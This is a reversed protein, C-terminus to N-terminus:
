QAADENEQKPDMFEITKIQSKSIYVGKNEPAAKWRNTGKITVYVKEIFIDRDESDSAAFSDDGFWGRIVSDDTLTVLVYSPEQQSFWYDWATSTPDIVKFGFAALLDYFLRKQKAMGLLLGISMAGVITILVCLFWYLVRQDNGLSSIWVYLWSWVACNIISYMMCSLFYIGDSTKRPPNMTDIVSKVIFGPLVFLGTYFVIDFSDVTM